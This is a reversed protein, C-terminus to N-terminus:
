WVASGTGPAATGGGRAIVADPILLLFSLVGRAMRAGARRGHGPVANGAALGGSRHEPLNAPPALEFRLFFSFYQKDSLGFHPTIIWKCAHLWTLLPMLPALLGQHGLFKLPYLCLIESSFMM